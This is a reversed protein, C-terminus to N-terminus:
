WRCGPAIRWAGSERGGGGSGGPTSPDVASGGGGGAVVLVDVNMSGSPTFTGSSTFTNIIRGGVSTVTGGTATPSSTTYANTAPGTGSTTGDDTFTYSAYPLGVTSAATVGTSTSFQTWGTQNTPHVATNATAGGTWSSQVFNYTAARAIRTFLFIGGGGAIATVLVVFLWRM